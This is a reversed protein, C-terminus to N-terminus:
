IATRCPLPPYCVALQRNWSEVKFHQLIKHIHEVSISLNQHPLQGAVHFPWFKVDSWIHGQTSQVVYTTLTTVTPQLLRLKLHKIRLHM